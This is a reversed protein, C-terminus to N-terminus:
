FVKVLETVTNGTVSVNVGDGAQIGALDQAAKKGVTLKLVREKKVRDQKITIKKAKVDVAQVIGGARFKVVKPAEKKAEPKAAETKAKEQPKAPEAPKASEAPKAPEAPKAKEQALAAGTLSIAFIFGVLVVIIRKM